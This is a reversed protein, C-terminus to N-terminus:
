LTNDTLCPWTPSPILVCLEQGSLLTQLKASSKPSCQPSLSDETEGYRGGGMGLSSTRGTFRKKM